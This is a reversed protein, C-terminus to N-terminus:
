YWGYDRTTTRGWTNLATSRARVESLRAGRIIEARIGHGGVDPDQGVFLAGRHTQRAWQVLPVDNPVNLRYMSNDAYFRFTMARTEGDTCTIPVQGANTGLLGRLAEGARRPFEVQFTHEGTFSELGAWVASAIAPRILAAARSQGTTTEDAVALFKLDDPSRERQRRAFVLEYRKLSADTLPHGRSWVRAFADGIKATLAPERTALTVELNKELGGETFNASGVYGCCPNTPSGQRDFRSAGVLLKPHFIAGPHEALRVTHQREALYEIAAPQTVAGSIGAVVRVQQANCKQALSHITKAGPVSLFATAIGIAPVQANGLLRGFTTAVTDGSSGSITVENM